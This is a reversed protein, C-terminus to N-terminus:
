QRGAPRPHRRNGNGREKAPDAKAQNGKQKKGCSNAIKTSLQLIRGSQGKFYVGAMQRANCINESNELLGHKSGGKLRLEFKEVPADPVVEFTNRIGGAKDTDIKGVLLVRIQGNLEAVLAPLEYGFGGVLYVKGSLPRELLPSWARAQGYVSKSPCAGALLVPKTCARGISGQDLFESHPLGVQARGINSYGVGKPYTVLARLAPHGARRTAGKLSLKLNPKFKLRRCESVQFYQSLSSVNGLTSTASGAIQKPECSTPNVTFNSRNVELSISRVDLPLGHLITPIRDSQATIQATLPDVALATRVAVVGLDFPGAIAPTIIEISVPAGKYPGALYARGSVSLPEPGAGATVNVTGVQSAAPCSPSSIEMAGEDEGGRSMAQAIGSEPCYPIGALKGLLGGPLTTAISEFQQSGDTRMLNLVFPAYAGATRDTTGANFGPSNPLQSPSSVCRSADVGSTITLTGTASLPEEPRSYSYLRAVTEFSGCTSPTILPARPGSGFHLRFHSFPLQPLDDFTTTLQGTQPDPDVKGAVRVLIGLQPDNIVVDITLLNHFANDGQKAVYIAGPLLEGELLPTEVEVTGVKSAEPCGTGPLSELTESEFQAQTCGELGVAVAPNTTVGQPLTVVAKKLDSGAQGTPSTLGPDNVDLNFALGTASEASRSTTTSEIRPEFKLGGCDTLALPTESLGSVPPGLPHQWSFASYETFQPPNCARPMTIFPEEPAGEASCKVGQLIICSGREEDHVPNAPNGWVTVKAGYVPVAQSINTAEAIVRYPAETSLTFTITVPVTLAVFGIEAVSGPPPALNFVARKAGPGPNNISPIVTGIAADNPCSPTETIPSIKLFAAHACTPVATPNGAFGLPLTLKLNKLEEDPFAHGGEEHFNVNFTSDVAFPHSGSQTAPIGNEEEFTLDVGNLGFDAFAPASLMLGLLGVVLFIGVWRKV